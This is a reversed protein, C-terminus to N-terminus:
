PQKRTGTPLRGLRRYIQKVFADTFRAPMSAYFNIENGVYPVAIEFAIPSKFAAVSNLLQESVSIEKKLDKNESISKPIRIFVLKTELQGM